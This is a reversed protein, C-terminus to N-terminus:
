LLYINLYKVRRNYNLDKFCDNENDYLPIALQETM